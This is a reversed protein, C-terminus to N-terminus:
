QLNVRVTNAVVGDVTLVLDVEGKGALGAPLQVNVQDLGTFQGQPGAFVVPAQTGGIACTVNALASRHRIGTGYFATPVATESQALCELSAFISVLFSRKTLIL